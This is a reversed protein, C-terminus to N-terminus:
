SQVSSALRWEEFYGALVKLAEIESKLAGYEEIKRVLFRSTMVTKEAIDQPTLLYIYKFKNKSKQFNSMKM